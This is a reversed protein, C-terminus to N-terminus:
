WAERKAIQEAETMGMAGRWLRRVRSGGVVCTDILEAVDDPTVFGYCDGM